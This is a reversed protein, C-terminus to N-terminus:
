RQIHESYNRKTPRQETYTKLRVEAERPTSEVGEAVRSAAERLASAIEGAVFAVDGEKSSVKSATKEYDAAM